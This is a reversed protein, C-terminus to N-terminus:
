RCQDTLHVAGAVADGYAEEDGGEGDAGTEDNERPGSGRQPPHRHETQDTEGSGKEVLM